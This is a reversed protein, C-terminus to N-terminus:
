APSKAGGKKMKACDAPQVLQSNHRLERCYGRYRAATYQISKECAAERTREGVANSIKLVGDTIGYTLEARQIDASPKSKFCHNGACMVTRPQRSLVVLVKCLSLKELVNWRCWHM